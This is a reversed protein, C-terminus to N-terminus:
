PVYSILQAVPLNGNILLNSNAGKVLSNQSVYASTNCRSNACIYNACEHIQEQIPKLCSHVLNDCINQDRRYAVVPARDFIISTVPYSSIISFNDMLIDKIKTTLPHYTLVLLVNDCTDPRTKNQLSKYRDISLVRAIDYELKRSPYGRETFFQKM